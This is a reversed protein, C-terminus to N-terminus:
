SSGLWSLRLALADPDFLRRRRAARRRVARGSRKGCSWRHRGSRLGRARLMNSIRSTRLRMAQGDCGRSFGRRDVAHLDAARTTTAATPLLFRKWARHGRRPLWCGARSSYRRCEDPLPSASGGANFAQYLGALRRSPCRARGRDARSRREGSVLRLSRCGSDQDFKELFGFWRSGNSDSGTSSTGSRPLREGGPTSEKRVRLRDPPAPDTM